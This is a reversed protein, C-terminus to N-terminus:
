EREAGADGKQLNDGRQERRRGDYQFRCEPDAVGFAATGSGFELAEDLIESVPKECRALIIV